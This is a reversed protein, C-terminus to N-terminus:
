ERGSAATRSRYFQNALIRAQGSGLRSRLEGYFEQRTNTRIMKNLLDQQATFAQETVTDPNPILRLLESHLERQIAEHEPRGALDEVEGPDRNLDFLMPDYGTAHIYKWNDKRIMFSGTCNGESHSESYAVGPHDGRRDQALGVLSHGRLKADRPLRALELMTAVMDVHM